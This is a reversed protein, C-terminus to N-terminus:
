VGQNGEKRDSSRGSKSLKQANAWELDIRARYKWETHHEMCKCIRNVISCTCIYILFVYGLLKLYGVM